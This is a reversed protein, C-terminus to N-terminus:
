RFFPASPQGKKSQAFIKEPLFDHVVVVVVVVVGGGDLALHGAEAPIGGPEALLDGVESILAVLESLLTVLASLISPGEILDNDQQGSHQKLCCQM